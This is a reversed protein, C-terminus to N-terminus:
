VLFDKAWTKKQWIKKWEIFKSRRRDYCFFTFVNLSEVTKIFWYKAAEM